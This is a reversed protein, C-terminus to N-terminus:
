CSGGLSRPSGGAQAPVFYTSRGLSRLHRLNVQLRLLNYLSNHLRRPLTAPEVGSKLTNSVTQRVCCENISVQSSHEHVTTLQGAPLNPARPLCTNIGAWPPWLNVGSLPPSSSCFPVLFLRELAHWLYPRPAHHSFGSALVTSTPMSSAPTHKCVEILSWVRGSHTTSGHEQRPTRHRRM